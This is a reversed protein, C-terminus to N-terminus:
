AVPVFSGRGSGAPFPLDADPLPFNGGMSCISVPPPAVRASRTGNGTEPSAAESGSAKRGRANSEAEKFEAVSLKAATETAIKM